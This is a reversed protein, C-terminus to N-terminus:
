PPTAWRMGTNAASNMNNAMAFEPKGPVLPKTPSHSTMSAVM